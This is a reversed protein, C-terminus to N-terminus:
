AIGGLVESSGFSAFSLAARGLWGESFMRSIGVACTLAKSGFGWPLPNSGVGTRPLFPYWRSLVGGAMSPLPKRALSMRFFLVWCSLSGFSPMEGLM